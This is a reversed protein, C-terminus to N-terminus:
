LHEHQPKTLAKTLAKTLVKTLINAIMNETQCYILKITDDRTYDRIFHYRIDIYRTRKPSMHNNDITICTQNDEYAHIPLAIKIDM